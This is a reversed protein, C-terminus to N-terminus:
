YASVHLSHRPGDGRSLARAVCNRFFTAAIALRQHHVRSDFGLGGAGTAQASLLQALPRNIFNKLVTESYSRNPILLEHQLMYVFKFVSLDVKAATSYYREVILVHNFKTCINILKLVPGISNLSRSKQAHTSIVVIVVYIYWIGFCIM